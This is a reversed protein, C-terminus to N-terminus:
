NSLRNKSNNGYKNWFRVLNECPVKGMEQMRLWNRCIGAEKAVQSQTKKSRRRYILCKENDRLTIQINKKYKFDEKKDYEALVYAFISVNFHGAAEAQNWDMRRRWILLKEGPSLALEKHSNRETRPRKVKSGM